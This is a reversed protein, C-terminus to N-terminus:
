SVNLLKLYADIMKALDFRKANELGKEIVANREAPNQLSLFADAFTEPQYPDAHLAGGGSVEPMPEITSAVVPAGCAQAEIVSWGFGESFSPFILAECESYLAVLTEHDPKSVSIIRDKLGLKVAYNLLDEDAPDGAYCVNGNWKDGIAALMDILLKRNKRQLNSGVNLLYPKSPMGAKQLLDKARNKELPYFNANFACHIVEWRKQNDKKDVVFDKLDTLTAQSDCAIKYARLLNNLIWKQYFKGLRSAPCHADAYGFAGKIALVDHCTISAKEKPLHKLYPANSHDCIHFRIEPKRFEGKFLKLRLLSPFIIWKDIYGVWKGFGSATTKVYKGFVVKPQLIHCDIGQNHLGRKLMEAFRIMSEQKDLPYNGILIIQM